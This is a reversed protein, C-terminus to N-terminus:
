IMKKSPMFWELLVTVTLSLIVWLVALLLEDWWWQKEAISHILLMFKLVKFKQIVDHIQCKNLELSDLETRGQSMQEVDGEM